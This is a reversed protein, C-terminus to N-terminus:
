AEWELGCPIGKKANGDGENLNRAEQKLGRKKM